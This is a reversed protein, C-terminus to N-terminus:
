NIVEGQFGNKKMKKLSIKPKIKYNEGNTLRKKVSLFM